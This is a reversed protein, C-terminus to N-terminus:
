GPRARRSGPCSPDRCISLIVLCSSCLRNSEHYPSRCFPIDGCLCLSVFTQRSSIVTETKILGGSRQTKTGKHHCGEPVTLYQFRRGDYCLSGPMIESRSSIAFTESRSIGNM